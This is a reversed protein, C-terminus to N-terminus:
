QGKERQIDEQVLEKNVRLAEAEEKRRQDDLKDEETPGYVARRAADKTMKVKLWDLGSTFAKHAMSIVREQPLTFLDDHLIRLTAYAEHNPTNLFTQLHAEVNMKAEPDADIPIIAILFRKNM